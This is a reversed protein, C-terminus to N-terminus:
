ENRARKIGDRVPDSIQDRSVSDVTPGTTSYRGFDLVEHGSERLATLRREKLALGAHAVAIGFRM